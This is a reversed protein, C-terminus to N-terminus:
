AHLPWKHAYNSITQFVQHLFKSVFEQCDAHPSSTHKLCVEIYIFHDADEILQRYASQISSETDVGASWKTVSRVVQM